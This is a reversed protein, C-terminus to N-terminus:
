VEDWKMMADKKKNELVKAYIQTTKISTHGLVNSVLAIDGTMELTLTAWTHRACHFSIEKQIDAIQMIDKLHRNTVQNTYVKFVNDNPVTQKSLLSKAKESLPINVLKNTKDLFINISNGNIIHKFKLQKIDSFRLSTYCAFLFYRLVQNLGKNKIEQNDFIEHLNKVENMSLFQRNGDHKKVKIDKILNERILGFEVAKNLFKKLLRSQKHITNPMNGKGKLNSEYGNWFSKNIEDFEVTTKYEKLKNIHTEFGQITKPAYKKKFTKAYNEVFNIYSNTQYKISRLVNDLTQSNARTGDLNCQTIYDKAKTLYISIDSNISVYDPGSSRVAQNKEHWHKENISKNTSYWSIKGNINAYLYISLTGDKRPRDKRLKLAFHANNM